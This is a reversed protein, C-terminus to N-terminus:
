GGRPDQRIRELQRETAPLSQVVTNVYVATEQQLLTDKDVPDSSPARSLTDAALLSKGPVHLITFSFRM